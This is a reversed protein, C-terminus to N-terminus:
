LWYATSKKVGKFKRYDGGGVYTLEITADDNGGAITLVDGLQYNLGSNVITVTDVEQNVDVLVDSTAGSGNGGNLNAAGNSYGSGVTLLTFAVIQGRQPNNRRIYNQIAQYTSVGENYRTYMMSFLTNAIDSNESKPKVNGFPTMQNVLDKAYEYYIFGLLMEKMGESVVAGHGEYLGNWQYFNYGSDYAFPEYIDVFNPSQPYDNSDLDAIFDNYLDVGLLQRLYRPVYKDIYAQIKNQDYMGTHLEYKNTFDAVTIFM